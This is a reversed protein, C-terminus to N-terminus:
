FAVTLPVNARLQAIKEGHHVCAERHRHM